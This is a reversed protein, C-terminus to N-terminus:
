PYICFHTQEIIFLFTANLVVAVIQFNREIMLGFNNKTDCLSPHPTRLSIELSLTILVPTWRFGQTRYSISWPINWIGNNPTVQLDWGDFFFNAEEVGLVVSSEAGM